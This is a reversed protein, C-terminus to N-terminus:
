SIKVGTTTDPRVQLGRLKNVKITGCQGRATEGIEEARKNTNEKTKKEKERDCVAGKEGPRRTIPVM